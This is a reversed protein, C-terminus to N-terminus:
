PSRDSVAAEAFTAMDNHLECALRLLPLATAAGSAEGLRLGLDLLPDAALAELVRAHGREQSRHAFILYPRCTPSLRCAVLAAVTVIFGDVLVPVRAQTSAIIAAALAAIEFGGVAALVALPDPADTLLGHMRLADAIVIAKRTQGNADLGTGAGVLNSPAEHLLAAAIAAASTTNGIGMEGLILLSAGDAIARAVARQGSALAHALEARTMAPELSFDRTGARLKDTIVGDIPEAALTGVDIVYLPDDLARALVSVAAGGQAFNQLMQVTVVSPFASVGQATVGHDGAFIIIPARHAHPTDTAQLAALQIALTELRGLSGQPKTLQDQRLRARQEHERSPLPCPAQLWDMAVNSTTKASSAPMCSFDKKHPALGPMIRM